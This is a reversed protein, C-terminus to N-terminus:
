AAEAGSEPREGGPCSAVLAVAAEVLAKGRFGRWALARGAFLGLPLMLLATWAALELSLVIPAVNM